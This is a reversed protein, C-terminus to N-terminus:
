SLPPKWWSNAVAHSATSYGLWLTPHLVCFHSCLLLAHPSHLDQCNDKQRERKEKMGEVWPCHGTGKRMHTEFREWVSKRHQIAQYANKAGQSRSKM